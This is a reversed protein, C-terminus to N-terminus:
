NETKKKLKKFQTSALVSYYHDRGGLEQTLFAM